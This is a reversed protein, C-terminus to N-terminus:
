PTVNHHSVAPGWFVQIYSEEQGRHPSEGELGYGPDRWFLDELSSDQKGPPSRTNTGIAQRQLAVRTDGAQQEPSLPPQAHFTWKLPNRSLRGSCQVKPTFRQAGVDSRDM